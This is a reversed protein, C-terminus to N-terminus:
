ARRPRPRSRPLRGQLALLAIGVAALALAIGVITWATSRGSDSTTASVAHRPSPVGATTQDWQPAVPKSVTSQDWGTSAVRGIQPAVNGARTDVPQSGNGVHSPAPHKVPRAQTPAALGLVVIVVAATSIVKRM